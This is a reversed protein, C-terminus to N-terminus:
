ILIDKKEQYTPYPGTAFSEEKLMLVELNLDADVFKTLGAGM